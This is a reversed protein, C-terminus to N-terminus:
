REPMLPPADRYQPPTESMRVPNSTLSVEGGDERTISVTPDLGLSRALEFAQGIDNVVGAPVRADTLRSAWERAPHQRLAELLKARLVDRNAVRDGNTAFRPDAALEPSASCRACRASSAITASRWFSSAM